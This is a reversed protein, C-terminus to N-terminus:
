EARAWTRVMYFLAIIGCAFGTILRFLRPAVGLIERVEISIPIVFLPVAGAIDREADSKIYIWLDGSINENRAQITWERRTNQSVIYQSYIIEGPDLETNLLSLKTIVLVACGNPDLNGEGNGTKASTLFLTGASNRDIPDPYSLVWEDDLIGSEELCSEEEILVLEPDLTFTKTEYNTPTLEWFIIAVLLGLFAFATIRNKNVM